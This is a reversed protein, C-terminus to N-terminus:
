EGRIFRAALTDTEQLPVGNSPTFPGPQYWSLGREVGILVQYGAAPATDFEITVPGANTIAYGSTQLLGGVYVRVAEIVETSDIDTVDVDTAVFTTTSGDGILMDPGYPPSSVFRDQYQAPLLNGVGMDYVLSDFLHDAAGTGATGRRLESITNTAYDITLYTIREGNITVVGYGNFNGSLLPDPLVSADAVHIVSDTSLLTQTLTTTSAETIRYTAQIGRMDQFIRFAIAAPVVSQTFITIAVVDANGIPAGSLIVQTGDVIVYNETSSLYFGNLTVIIRDTNTIVRGTDFRNTEIIIGETFDFSGPDGTTNGTDFPTSDYEQTTEIGEITPGVFVKTIIDQQRTDNWTTFSLVDGAIPVLGATSKWVLTTGSLYYDAATDVSILVQAGIAPPNTLTVGRTLSSLDYPDLLFDVGLTLPVSNVYVDVENPSVLSLNYGGRDPLLFFTENADGIYEVGAAPRARVGNKEVIINAPNTGSLSNTLVYSLTSGDAIEYQTIPTSWSYDETTIGMATINVADNIGYTSGFTIDTSYGSFATYTFDTTQIGNVFVVIEQLLSTQVPIIVSNGIDAGNYVNRYLQSGGGLGYASIAAVQGATIGGTFSITQAPWDITYDVGVTLQVRNTINWVRVEVPYSILESFSYTTTLPVYIYNITATPFGHGNLEWDSGPNTYVRLDLTDFIAGPVLEEPAHSSYTDVFGGGDVNIDTYGTGTPIPGTQPTGFYSEYIADLIGPDYSPAGDPGYTINDFPNIDFNGVDFGTNQSFLPASVQVGPYDVGSILLALDLGPENVTPTYYGMTRDVGSMLQTPEYYGYTPNYTLSVTGPNILTWDTPDFTASSVTANASWARNDYRVLTGAAYSTNAEWPLINSQYQYRDYRITTLVNRVLGNGMIAVASAKTGAYILVATGNIITGSTATPPITGLVGSTDVTYTLGASTVIVQGGLVPNLEVWAIGEPIGGILSIIATTLYGQGPDVVDIGVLQGASNIRATMTAPVQCDGTVVVSPPATYGDGPNSVSAGQIGLLYNQYWQDWPLTQWVPSTSPVSSTKSLTGTNDLVPSIFLSQSADWYAPLDFDTLTGNYQDFGQYKLNFERIQTHYPKVEKIYNLVFDQNDQRYIQYPVLERIVHDVDILSTKTLWTPAIQETLIYNFMLTLLRNRDIALEDILLEQNIAQIVKRTETVPEQDFYQADFVEADFGFRAQIYDWLNSSFEITGDQLGVRVWAGSLYQYIEFKGQANRTVKVSSGNPVNITSLASYNLVEAVPRTLPNYGPQYWNIYSWYRRTDYSQVRVLGLSKAGVIASSQVEYITWLGNNSADSSVLYRYGYPVELLDQFSLEELNAVKKNWITVVNGQADVTTAAPEPEQSNLLNFSRMEVIPYQALVINARELYNQLALFRNVFFSQRPRVQVGYKESPPLMPDPVPAGLINTGCFSDQMKQYLAADLFGTDRNEAILQYEFNIVDQNLQQDYEVHIITDQNSIYPATNYIAITSSDIPAMYAIGSSRPSELYQTVTAISLTKKAAKNVTTIGTVWFYYTAVFVGQEDINTTVVYSTTNLAIGEGTYQAPPVSASVWQYVNISSGPFLEGWRKSAYSIDGQNPDIFRANTTNWWVQGVHEQAWRSGFNNITGANYNAPDVAGIYDINQRVAGLIKGQLPDFFDIYEKVNGNLVNYLFVSNMLSIDVVPQQVRIPKWAPTNNNNVFNLVLGSDVQGSPGDNGTAGILLVGSTYDISTGFQDGSAAEGSAYEYIQQGFVFKGTNTAASEAAPLFDYSYVVGSNSITDVFMTSKADFYTLGADFKTIEVASGNPAGVLLTVSNEGIFLSKGFYAYDQPVPSVIDQAWIYLTFGLEDFITSTVAPLVQLKNAIPASDFNKVSIIIRGSVMRITSNTVPASTFTVQQTTTNYVYDVNPTLEINNVYVVTKNISTADSWLTGVDFVKTASDGVFYLDPTLTVSVNPLLGQSITNNIDTALQSVTTGTNRVYVNNIAIFEDPTLDPNAIESTIVGYLKAQNQFYGVLGGQYAVASDYPAGVYLSCNNICQDIAHGFQAGNTPVNSTILGIHDFQNTDIEIVDGVATTVNSTLVVTNTGSISFQANVTGDSNTLYEGNLAVSTPQTLVEATRYNVQAANIVEFRQVNRNFVHVVGSSNNGDVDTNPAGVMIIRGNATASISEGFRDGSTVSADTLVDVLKYYTGTKVIIQDDVALTTTFVISDNVYDYDFRPRQIVGNVYVSFSEINDVFYLSSLSYTNTSSDAVFDQITRRTVKIRSGTSPIQDLVVSTGVISYQTTNLPFEDLAVTVQNDADLEIQIYDQFDYVYSEGDAIFTTSQEQYDVRGYAYAKDAGPAGVYIWHEDRSVSVSYGFEDPGAQLIRVVAGDTPPLTFLVSVTTPNISLTYDVSLVQEVNDVYVFVQNDQTVNYRVDVEFELGSGDGELLDQTSDILLQWQAFLNSTPENFIVQVYGHNNLSASAGIASWSQDGMDMANGFGNVGTTTLKIISNQSYVNNSTKVYTFVAGTSDYGPAGVMAALNRFGQTVSYGSYANSLSQFRPLTTGVTFPNTKELVTWHGRGNNDVWVRSGTYLEDVYPLNLIDSSQAVRIPKLVFGIGEGVVNQVTTMTYNILVSFISPVSQVTYVGNIATDFQKIILPNSVSLTHARSFTVLSQGNLNDSVSIIQGPVLETSYINWDYSNVKAAWVTTGVKISDLYPTLAAPNSFDFLTLDVDDLNVYGASPLNQDTIVNYTTPLINPSTLPQSSKWVNQLLVVQDATSETGPNVVQILSPNAQLLPQNLLIEYYSRNATAGYSSRLMAWYEYINYEAVEKGLNVSKFIEAARLTGKTGLFQQYLNVQSVDDLNLAQMYDRPRFGILGYSFLDTETELNADYVSYSTALQDSANSANPLLGKQIQNYDSKIWLSYDFKESPQIITSASWYENKFLVIEGKAYKKNKVWEIINDQNLVFGPANVLGTWDGSLWGATLIRSQRSGTLPDYILDAFISVNDLVVMHEYSTFKLDIYNITESTQTTVRFDNGIRDIVINAPSIPQRNQNLLLSEPSPTAISDVIANPRGVSIQTAAPNLNIVSGTSWGQQSWYLFEQSMQYWDLVYGNEKTEFLLGDEALFKGYSLLFDCLSTSSTFVYGYPVKVTDTYYEVPVKVSINGTSITTTIGNPRSVYIEFYPKVASYGLVAYGGEVKQVIVSSYTIREFPQNKYLLLQYSEDPLLLSTNLSNPTSRETYLKLYKKDSFAAMRWCLRVGLNALTASLDATSDNGGQRNYDIIWNLYSAKSTGNGYLPTLEKGNLRYRNDWLYQNLTNDYVYRDRDTLLSFFKAPKTLALLRMVAFPWASSTRWASEVPGDDGFAWSRRFSTIDYNGTVSELPTLLNGESDVPIANSLGPRAYEPKFYAGDPDNVFGLELDGWLILNGSTYPAPGYTSQWWTPEQSLGLLEWPRTDPSITDYFYNYIGRWAGLLPQKDIKNQSQSYNYTFPNDALYVQTTYDLKNWGVWSLFDTSLIQNVESLSYDTVRFQGPIVETENIPIASQIKLNNFIRTEFELLVNDRYDGFARTISGDHGQIVLTPTVAATDEFIEPKYAPYMGMKTPTNPVFSGVTTAYERLTIVDGVALATTVTIIPADSSVTYDYDKTLLVGNLYVLLAYYNSSTYDYVRNTDFVNTSIVSYTYTVETYTEGSPVMDSWYFPMLNNKSLAIEQMVLDLVRTPTNNVFDGNSALDLMLNKYKTYEQSNFRLSNFLEYQQKRLFAGTLTMPSAHQVISSGYLIVNGLDRVNNAGIIPGQITTLNQGISQYYNRVTGLTFSKSNENFPNNELNLPIQYYGVTSPINSLIQGEIITGLVPPNLLTVTTSVDTSTLTYQSPDIFQTGVFLQLVPFVTNQAPPVDFILPSGDYTFRFVQRQRAEGAAPQWGLLNSFSIRDVYQRVFGNSINSTSSVADRVYIFTDSYFNNEFVIDGVNNINLYQLAFGLVTDVTQTGGLAYSFLKTGVFTSSPYIVPNSYSIGSADRVDFLPPQNVGTKQQSEKWVVGDFWFSKGQLTIGSLCVVTQNVKAESEVAPVLDIIYTGSNNPDIFKVEYIRNRVQLDNDVAFIIRSGDILSYGNTAYGQQGNVNSLADTQQLDIINIPQKGQSGFNFLELNGRFEIIPRQARRLNDVTVVQNNYGATANIVDIHFWRNSRTWPNLDRGARNITLYDPVEPANLVADFNTSDYSTSDYPVSASKTYTEPTVFNRVPLLVIGNGSLDNDIPLTPLPAGSPAGAGNNILSEEITDYIFFQYVDTQHMSGTIKQNQYTHWPGFYAEGGIFGVRQAIGPGTGVGEVYYELNQFEAPTTLGRFQVKLGNTFVVGNPSVYNKAGIIDNIDIPVVQTQDILKIQGFIEPNVSDQYYLTDLTATLLPIEEFVGSANKYWQTSSYQTGAQIRFKNFQPVELINTLTIFPNNDDDYVYNIQWVSYQETTNTIETTQSFPISDFSGPLGDNPDPTGSVIVDTITNYPVDDYPQGTVDYSINTGVQNPTTRLLPDFQTNINWGTSRTFVLTMGDLGTVGDIGTPNAALFQDVYINNLQDFQLDCILDVPYPQNAVTLVPLNYYFDQDSSYPVNFTVTGQEEGNNIVGLVTRSSINPTAPIVGRVGPAAQIWFNYGVQNVNFTYTGGRVLTIPPNNNALGSFQYASNTRTVDYSDTLPIDTSSVDVPDPGGPLWYYQSYNTFKDLDCFPDWSYYEENFLRDQQTTIAQQLNLADVIGPYTIADDVTTTSPKFFVVGPELQYHNRSVSPEVVYKDAPNVGPGVRRGVFGNTKKLVPEQTLQDLTAALFKKNTDTRFIEPLLDVTRQAM